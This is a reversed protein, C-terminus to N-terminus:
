PRGSDGTQASLAVAIWHNQFSFSAIALPEAETVTLFVHTDHQKLKIRNMAMRLGTGTYKLAAEKLTWLRIGCLEKLIAASEDPHAIRRRLGSHMSRNCPEVDVGVQGCGNLACVLMNRSHSISIGVVRGNVIGYPKGSEMKRIEFGDPDMGERLLAKELLDRALSATKGSKADVSAMGGAPTLRKGPEASLSAAM